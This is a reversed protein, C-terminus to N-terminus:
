RSTRDVLRLLRVHIISSFIPFHMTAGFFFCDQFSGGGGFPSTQTEGLTEGNSCLSGFSPVGLFCLLWVFGGWLPCFLRCWLSGSGGRGSPTSFSQFSGGGRKVPGTKKEAIRNNRRTYRKQRRDTMPLLFAACRTSGKGFIWCWTGGM